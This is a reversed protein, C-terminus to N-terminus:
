ATGNGKTAGSEVMSQDGRSLEPQMGTMNSFKPESKTLGATSGCPRNV